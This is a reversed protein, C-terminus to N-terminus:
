TDVGKATSMSFTERKGKHDATSRHSDTYGDGLVYALTERASIEPDHTKYMQLELLDPDPENTISTITLVSSRSHELNMVHMIENLGRLLDM